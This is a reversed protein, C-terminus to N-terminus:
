VQEAILPVLHRVDGAHMNRLTDVALRHAGGHEVIEADLDARRESWQAAADPADARHAVVAALLVDQDTEGRQLRDQSSGTKGTLCAGGDLGCKGGVVRRRNTVWLGRRNTM